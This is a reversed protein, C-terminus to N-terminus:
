KIAKNTEGNELWEDGPLIHVHFEIVQPADGAKCEVRISTGKTPKLARLLWEVEIEYSGAGLDVETPSDVLQLLEPDFNIFTRTEGMKEATILVGIRFVDGIRLDKDLAPASSLVMRVFREMVNSICIM